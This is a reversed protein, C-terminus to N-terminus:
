LEELKVRKWKGGVFFQLDVTGQDASGPGDTGPLVRFRYEDSDVNTARTEEVPMATRTLENAIESLCRVLDAVQASDNLDTLSPITIM